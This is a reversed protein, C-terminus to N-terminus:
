LFQGLFGQAAQRFEEPASWLLPHNGKPSFFIRGNQLQNLVEFGYKVPEIVMQDQLSFTLLVPCSIRTLSEGLWQGGNDVLDILMQTDADVVAHWDEGHSFYWFAAQDETPNSREAIVNNQLMQPTFVPTFSDAIVAQALEPQAAACHLAVVSGGSTGLLIAPGLDLHEILAAAQDACYAFWDEPMQAIRESRGTGLYDLAVVTFTEAYYDLEGQHCISSATNGPLIVLLPGEGQRRYFLQNGQYTFKPM